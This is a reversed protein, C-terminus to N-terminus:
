PVRIERIAPERSASKASWLRVPRFVAAFVSYGHAGGDGGRLRCGLRKNISAPGWGRESERPSEAGREPRLRGTLSDDAEM